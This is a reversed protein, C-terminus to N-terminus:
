VGDAHFTTDFLVYVVDDLTVHVDALPPPLVLRRNRPRLRGAQFAPEPSFVSRKRHGRCWRPYSSRLQGLQEGPIQGIGISNTPYITILISIVDGLWKPPM